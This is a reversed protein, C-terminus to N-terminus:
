IKEGFTLLTGNPDLLSFEKMGWPKTELSGNPHIAINKNQVQEFFKEIDNSIKFYLMFDSQIPDLAKFEFFHLESNNYVAILYNNYDAVFEFGLKQYYAITEAKSIFPIKAIIQSIM